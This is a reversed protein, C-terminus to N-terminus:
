WATVCCQASARRMKLRCNSCCNTMFRCFCKRASNMLDPIFKLCPSNSLTLRVARYSPISQPAAPRLPPTAPLVSKRFGAYAAQYLICSPPKRPTASLKTLGNRLAPTFVSIDLTRALGQGGQGYVIGFNIAKARRRMEPEVMAPMVGFVDAATQTHIDGGEEFATVLARDGSEHALVRLDIQSYDAAVFIKGQGAAFARRIVRGQESRVPINQLNPKSSSLRGTATGTQDFFTHVRSNADVAALLGDAYVSKLKMAERYKLIEAAVPYQVALESLVEEDTSFGTKTKHGPNIGLETFLFEALQKPSNINVPHKSVKQIEAEAREAIGGLVASADALLKGDVGIGASEM